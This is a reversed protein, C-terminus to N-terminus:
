PVCLITPQRNSRSPGDALTSICVCCLFIHPKYTQAVTARLFHMLQSTLTMNTYYSCFFVQSWLNPFRGTLRVDKQNQAPGECCPSFFCWCCLTFLLFDSLDYLRTTKIFAFWLSVFHTHSHGVWYDRHGDCIWSSCSIFSFHCWFSCCFWDVSSVSCIHIWMKRYIEDITNNECTGCSTRVPSHKVRSERTRAFMDIHAWKKDPICPCWRSM